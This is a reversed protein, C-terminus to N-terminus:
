VKMKNMEGSIRVQLSALKGVQWSALEDMSIWEEMWIWEDMVDM